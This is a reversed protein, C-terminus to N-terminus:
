IIVTLLMLATAGFGLCWILSRWPTLGLYYAPIYAVRAGLYIWALIASLGTTKDALTVVMVAISFLILGEFHNDMARKLRATNRSLEPVTDRPGTTVRLGLQLNAPLAYLCFQLIQLLAAFTLATLEATM